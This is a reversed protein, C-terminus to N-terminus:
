PRNAQTLHPDKYTKPLALGVRRSIREVSAKGDRDIAIRNEQLLQRQAREAEFLALADEIRRTVREEEGSPVAAALFARYKDSRGEKAGRRWVDRYLRLVLTRLNSGNNM